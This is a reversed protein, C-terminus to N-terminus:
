RLTGPDVKNVDIGTLELDFRALLQWSETILARIDAKEEEFFKHAAEDAIDNSPKDTMTSYLRQLMDIWDDVMDVTVPTLLTPSLFINKAHLLAEKMETVAQTALMPWEQDITHYVLLLHSCAKTLPILTGEGTPSKSAIPTNSTRVGSSRTSTATTM